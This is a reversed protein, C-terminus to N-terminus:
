PRRESRMKLLSTHFTDIHHSMAQAAAEPNGQKRAAIISHHEQSCAEARSPLAAIRTGFM